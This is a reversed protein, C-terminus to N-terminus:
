LVWRKVEIGRLRIRKINNCSRSCANCGVCINVTVYRGGTSVRHAHIVRLSGLQSRRLKLLKFM